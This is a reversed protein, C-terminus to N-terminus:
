IDSRDRNFQEEAEFACIEDGVECEWIEPVRLFKKHFYRPRTKARISDFFDAFFSKNFHFLWFSIVLSVLKRVCYIAISESPTPWQQPKVFIASHYTCASDNCPSPFLVLCSIGWVAPQFAWPPKQQSEFYHSSTSTDKPSAGVVEKTFYLALM